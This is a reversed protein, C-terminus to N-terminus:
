IMHQENNHSEKLFLTGCHSESEESGVWASGPLVKFVVVM